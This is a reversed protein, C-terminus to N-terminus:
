NRLLSKSTVAEAPGTCAFIGTRQPSLTLQRLLWNLQRIKRKQPANGPVTLSRARIDARIEIPAAADPVALTASLCQEECLEIADAKARAELDKLHERPIKPSVEVGLQRSMTLSLDRIVQHWAGVTERTQPTNPSPAAGAQASTFMPERRPMQDFGKVGASQHTLFRVMENIYKDHDAVDDNTLLLTAETLIHM